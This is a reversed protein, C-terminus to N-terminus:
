PSCSPITINATSQSDFSGQSPALPHGRVHYGHVIVLGQQIESGSIRTRRLESNSLTDDVDITFSASEEPQLSSIVVSLRNDGDSVKHALTLTSQSEAVAFPQFVNEGPGNAVTDFILKGASLSLDIEVTLDRLACSGVNQITFRDTPASEVFVVQINAQALPTLFFLGILPYLWRCKIMM